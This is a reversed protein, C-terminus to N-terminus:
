PSLRRIGVVCQAALVRHVVSLLSFSLSLYLFVSCLIYHYILWHLIRVILANWYDQGGERDRQNGLM